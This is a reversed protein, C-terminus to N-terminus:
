ETELVQELIQVVDRIKTLIEDREMRRTLTNRLTTLALRLDINKGKLGNEISGKVKNDQM